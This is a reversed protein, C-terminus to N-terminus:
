ELRNVSQETLIAVSHYARRDSALGVFGNSRELRYVGAM